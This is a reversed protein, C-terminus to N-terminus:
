PLSASGRASSRPAYENLDQSERILAEIFDGSRVSHTLDSFFRSSFPDYGMDQIICGGRILTPTPVRGYPTM